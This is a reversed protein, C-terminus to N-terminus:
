NSSATICIRTARLLYVLVCTTNAPSSNSQLTVLGANKRADALEGIISTSAATRSITCLQVSALCEHGDWGGFVAISSEGVAACTHCATAQKLECVRRWGRPGLVLVQAVLLRAAVFFCLVAFLVCSAPAHSCALPHALDCALFRKPRESPGTCDWESSHRRNARPSKPTSPPDHLCGAGWAAPRCTKEM